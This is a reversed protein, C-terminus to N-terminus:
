DVRNGVARPEKWRANVLSDRAARRRQGVVEKTLIFTVAVDVQDLEGAVRVVVRQLYLHVAADRGPESETQAVGPRLSHIQHVAIIVVDVREDVRADAVVALRTKIACVNEREVVDVFNGAQASIPIVGQRPGYKVTPLQRADSREDAAGRGADAVVQRRVGIEDAARAAAHVAANEQDPVRDQRAILAIRSAYVVIICRRRLSLQLRNATM